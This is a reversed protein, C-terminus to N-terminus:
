DEYEEAQSTAPRAERKEDVELPRGMMELYLERKQESNLGESAELWAAQLVTIM